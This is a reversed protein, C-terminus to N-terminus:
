FEPVDGIGEDVGGRRRGLFLTPRSARRENFFEYREIEVANIEFLTNCTTNM